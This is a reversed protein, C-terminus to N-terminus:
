GMVLVAVSVVFDEVGASVLEDDVPAEVPVLPVFGFWSVPTFVGAGVAGFGYFPLVGFRSLVQGGSLRTRKQQRFQGLAVTGM